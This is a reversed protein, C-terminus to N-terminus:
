GGRLLLFLTVMTLVLNFGVLWQLLTQTDKIKKVWKNIENFRRYAIEWELDPDDFEDGSNTLAKAVSKAREDSIGAEKFATYIEEIMRTILIRPKYYQRSSGKPVTDKILVVRALTILVAMDGM